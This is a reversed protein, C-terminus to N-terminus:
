CQWLFLLISKLFALPLFLVPKSFILAAVSLLLPLFIVTILGIISVPTMVAMRMVSYTTESLQKAMLYGAPLGATWLLGLLLERIHNPQFFRRLPLFHFQM